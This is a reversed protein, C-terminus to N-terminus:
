SNRDLLVVFAATIPASGAASRTLLLAGTRNVSVNIGLRTELTYLVRFRVFNVVFKRECFEDGYLLTM